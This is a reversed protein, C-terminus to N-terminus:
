MYIFTIGYSNGTASPKNRLEWPEEPEVPNGSNGYNWQTGQTGMTGGTGSPERLEWPEEPEVQNGSNRHNRRNWKTGQTGMTEGTGSPERLELSKVPNRSNGHNRQNWQTGQTGISNGHNRRNWQTGQTGMTGGTGSHAELLKRRSAHLVSSNDQTLRRTDCCGRVCICELTQTLITFWRKPQWTGRTGTIGYTRHSLISNRLNRVLWENKTSPIRVRM